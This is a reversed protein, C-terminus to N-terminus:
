PLAFSAGRGVLSSVIENKKEIVASEQKKIKKPANLVEAMDDSDLILLKKPEKAPVVYSDCESDASGPRMQADRDGSPTVGFHDFAKTWYTEFKIV